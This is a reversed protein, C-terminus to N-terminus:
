KDATVLVSDNALKIDAVLAVDSVISAEKQASLEQVLMTDALAKDKSGADSLILEYDEYDQKEISKLLRPLNEEENLTIIIISLEPKGEM